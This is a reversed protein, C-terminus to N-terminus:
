AGKLRTKSGKLVWEDFSLRTNQLCWEKDRWDGMCFVELEQVEVIEKEIAKEGFRAKCALLIEELLEPDIDYLTYYHKTRWNQAKGRYIRDWQPFYRLNKFVGRGERWDFEIHTKRDDARKRFRVIM